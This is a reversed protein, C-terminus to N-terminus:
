VFDLDGFWFHFPTISLANTQEETQGKVLFNLKDKMVWKIVSSSLYPRTQDNELLFLGFAGHKRAFRRSATILESVYASRDTIVDALYFMRLGAKVTRKLVAYGKIATEDSFELLEYPEGDPSAARDYRWQIYTSTKDLANAVVWPKWRTLFHDDFHTVHRVKGQVKGVSPWSPLLAVAPSMGKAYGLKKLFIPTSAANTFTLFFDVEQSLFNDKENQLYLQGFYGQGRIEESTLVKQPFGVRKLDGHLVWRFNNTSALGKITGHDECVIISHSGFPNKWYWHEIYDSTTKGDNEVNILASLSPIDASTANRLIM